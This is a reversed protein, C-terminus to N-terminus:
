VKMHITFSLQMVPDEQSLTGSDAKQIVVSTDCQNGLNSQGRRNVITSGKTSALGKEHTVLVDSFKQRAKNTVTKDSSQYNTLPHARLYRRGVGRDVAVAM